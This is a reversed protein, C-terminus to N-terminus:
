FCDTLMSGDWSCLCLDRTYSRSVGEYTEIDCVDNGAATGAHDNLLAPPCHNNFPVGAISGSREGFASCVCMPSGAEVLFLDTAGRVKHHSLAKTSGVAAIIPMGGAGASLTAHQATMGRLPRTLVVTRKGGVVTSSKVTVSPALLVGPQHEGAIGAGTGLQRETVVGDGDM